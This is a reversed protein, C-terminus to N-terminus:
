YLKFTAAANTLGFPMRKFQFLGRGSVTFATKERSDM